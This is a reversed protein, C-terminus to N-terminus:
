DRQHKSIAVILVFNAIHYSHDSSLPYICFCSTSRGDLGAWFERVKWYGPECSSEKEDLLLAVVFPCSLNENVSGIGVSTTSLLSSSVQRTSSSTSCRISRKRNSMLSASVKEGRLSRTRSPSIALSAAALVFATKADTARCITSPV